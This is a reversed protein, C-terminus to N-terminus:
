DKVFDDTNSLIYFIFKFLAETKEKYYAEEYRGKNGLKIKRFYYKTHSDQLYSFGSITNIDQSRTETGNNFTKSTKQRQITNKKSYIIQHQRPSFHKNNDNNSRQTLSSSNEKDKSIQKQSKNSKSLMSSVNDNIQLIQSNSEIIESQTKNININDQKSPFQIM